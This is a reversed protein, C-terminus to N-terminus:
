AGCPISYYDLQGKGKRTPVYYYLSEVVITLPLAIINYNNMFAFIVSYLLTHVVYIQM